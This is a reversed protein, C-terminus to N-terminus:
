KAFIAFLDLEICDHCGNVIHSLSSPFKVLCIIYCLTHALCDQMIHKYLVNLTITFNSLAYYSLRFFLNLILM